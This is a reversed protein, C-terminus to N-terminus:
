SVNAADDKIESSKGFGWPMRGPNIDMYLMTQIVYNRALPYIQEGYKELDKNIEEIKIKNKNTTEYHSFFVCNLHFLNDTNKSEKEFGALSLKFEVIFKNAEKAKTDDLVLGITINVGVTM